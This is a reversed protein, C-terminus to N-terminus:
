ELELLREEILDKLELLDEKTAKNRIFGRCRSRTNLYTNHDKNKEQWKKNAITQKSIENM